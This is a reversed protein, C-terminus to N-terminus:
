ISVPHGSIQTPFASADCVRLCDVGRVRLASDLVSDNEDNGMRCTSVPHYLTESNERIWKEIMADTLTNPDANGPWFPDSAYPGPSFSLWKAMSPQRVIHLMIRVARILVKIDNPHSLYAPDVIVHDFPSKSALKVTGKSKPRLVM